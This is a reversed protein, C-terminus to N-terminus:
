LFRRSWFRQALKLWVQLMADKLSPSELKNLHPAGDKELPLFNRFLSFLIVFILFIRRLFLQALKLWVQCLADKNYFKLEGSFKKNVSRLAVTSGMTFVTYKNHLFLQACNPSLNRWISSFGLHFFISSM